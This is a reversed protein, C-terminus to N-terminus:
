ECRFRSRFRAFVLPFFDFRAHVLFASGEGLLRAEVPERLPSSPMPGGRHSATRCSARVRTIPAPNVINRCIYLHRVITAAIPASLFPPRHVSETFLEALYSGPLIRVQSRSGEFSGSYGSQAVPGCRVSGPASRFPGGGNRNRAVHLQNTKGMMGSFGTLSRPIIHVFPCLRV